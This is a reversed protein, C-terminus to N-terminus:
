RTSHERLLQIVVQLAESSNDTRYAIGTDIFLGQESLRRFVVGPEQVREAIFSKVFGIAVGAGVLDFLESVTNIECVIQPVRDDSM